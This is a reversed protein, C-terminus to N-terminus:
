LIEEIQKPLTNEKMSEELESYPIDVKHPMSESQLDFDIYFFNVCTKLRNRDAYGYKDRLRDVISNIYLDLESTTPQNM